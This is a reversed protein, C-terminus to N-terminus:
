DYDKLCKSCLNPHTTPKKRDNLEGCDHCVRELKRVKTWPLCVIGPLAGRRNEQKGDGANTLLLMRVDDRSMHELRSMFEKKSMCYGLDFVWDYLEQAALTFELDPDVNPFKKVITLIMECDDALNRTKQFNAHTKHLQFMRRFYELEGPWEMEEFQTVTEVYRALDSQVTQDYVAEVESRDSKFRAKREAKGPDEDPEKIKVTKTLSAVVSKIHAATMVPQGNDDTPAKELAVEWVARQVDPELSVLERAQSETTPIVGIPTLNSVVAASDILRNAHSKSINWRERCYDEFTAFEIRYLRSERIEGLAGGVELFTDRGRQIVKECEKLRRSEEQSLPLLTEVEQPEAIATAMM